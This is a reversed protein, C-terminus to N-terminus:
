GILEIPRASLLHSVIENIITPLFLSFGYLPGDCGMYTIAGTYTKWDKVSAWFYQMTYEEHKASSQADKALRYRVRARDEASLFNAEDPFPPVAWYSIVGAIFTALGEIIFIWAWGPKGGLGDMKVIATALLGGFSGALAAASFFIAMRIGIESRRYWCSLLYNVGPFLGAECAGLFFRAALLGSGNKCFGMFIM